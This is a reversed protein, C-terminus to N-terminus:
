KGYRRQRKSYEEIIKDIDANTFDPWFKSMFLMEAYAARWLMFGSIRQEGSTRVIIDVAPIEPHYLSEEIDSIEIQNKEPNNVLINNLADVIENQGGYNFCLALTGGTNNATKSEATQIAKILSDSLKDKSGLIVIKINDRHFGDLYETLARLVLKMLYGVEEKTRKWNETSFVYASIFEIHKEKFAYTALEQLNKYGALHGEMAPLGREKAWRRNGDLILGIHRPKSTDTM